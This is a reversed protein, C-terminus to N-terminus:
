QWYSPQNKLALNTDIPTRQFTIEIKFKIMLSKQGEHIVKSIAGSYTPLCSTFHFKHNIHSFNWRLGRGCQQAIKNIIKNLSFPFIGKLWMTNMMIHKKVMKSMPWQSCNYLCGLTKLPKLFCLACLETGHHGSEQMLSWIAGESGPTSEM